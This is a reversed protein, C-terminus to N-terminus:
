NPGSSAAASRGGKTVPYIVTPDAQLPMGIRLRNSYVGGGHAARVAKRNGKGRDRGAHDSGGQQKGSPRAQRKAWLADLEKTMADQM